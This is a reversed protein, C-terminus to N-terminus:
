YLDFEKEIMRNEIDIFFNLSSILREYDNSLIPLLAEKYKDWDNNLENSLNIYNLFPTLSNRLVNTPIFELNSDKLKNILWVIGNRHLTHYDLDVKKLDIIIDNMLKFNEDVLPIEKHGNLVKSNLYTTIEHM